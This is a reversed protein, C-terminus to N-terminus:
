RGKNHFYLILMGLAWCGIAIAAGAALCAALYLLPDM